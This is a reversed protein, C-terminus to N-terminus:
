NIVMGLYISLLAYFGLDYTDTNYQEKKVAETWKEAAAKLDNGKTFEYLYWLSGGFFGSCWWESDMTRLTGDLNVSQPFKDTNPLSRLMGQYQKVALQIQKDINIKDQAYSQVFCALM